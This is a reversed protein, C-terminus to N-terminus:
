VLKPSVHCLRSDCYDQAQEGACGRHIIKSEQPVLVEVDARLPNLMVQLILLNRTM